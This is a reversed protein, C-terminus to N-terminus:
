SFGAKTSYTALQKIGRSRSRFQLVTSLARVQKELRKRGCKAPVVTNMPLVSTSASVEISQGGSTFLQSM